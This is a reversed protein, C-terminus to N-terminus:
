IAGVAAPLVALLNKVVRVGPAREAMVRFADRQADSQVAGFLEVTGHDVVFNVTASDAWAEKEAQMRLYNRIAADRGKKAAPAKAGSLTHLLDHRSVIGSLKGGSVVPVRKIKWKEFIDVIERVDTRPTVSIVSRTMVDAARLGHSKVFAAARESPDSIIDLWWSRQRETGLEARRVLDGESVIGVVRRREDVVPVASIKREIMVRAVEHVPTAATVSRVKRTMIDAAKM